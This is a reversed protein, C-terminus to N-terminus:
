AEAKIAALREMVEGIAKVYRAEGHGETLAKVARKASDAHMAVDARVHQWHRRTGHPRRTGVGGIASGGYYLTYGDGNAKYSLNAPDFDPM